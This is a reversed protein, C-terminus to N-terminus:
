GILPKVLMLFVNSFKLYEPCTGDPGASKGCELKAIVESICKTLVAMDANHQINELKRVIDDRLSKDCDNTNLIKYFHDRWYNAIYIKDQFVMLLM